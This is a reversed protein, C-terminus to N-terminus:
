SSAYTYGEPNEFINCRIFADVVLIDVCLELEDIPIQIFNASSQIKNKVAEIVASFIADKDDYNRFKLYERRIAAHVSISKNNGLNDFQSFITDVKGYYIGYENIIFKSSDLDNYTIKREIEFSNAQALVDTENLDIQALTNIVAALNSDLKVLDINNGLEEKIFNYVKKQEHIDMHLIKGLITSIDFIDKSPSFSISFPNSFSSKQLSSADKAISIFNFTYDSYKEIISKSLASEVKTKTNTASIQILIKNSHDILDIAEVNQLTENLNILDYSYLLNLFSCYFNESHTHLDLVNLKGRTVIRQALVHLKEDIYNFYGTRNM